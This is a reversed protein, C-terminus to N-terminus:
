STKYIHEQTDSAPGINGTAYITWVYMYVLGIGWTYQIFQSITITCIKLQTSKLCNVDVYIINKNTM